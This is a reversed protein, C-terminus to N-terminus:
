RAWFRAPEGLDVRLDMHIYQADPTIFYVSFGLALAIKLLEHRDISDTVRVDIACTGKAGRKPNDYIHLSNKAAGALTKNYSEARCCSTPYIPKAYMDRLAQLKKPFTPHFAYGGTQPCRLEEPTFNRLITFPDTM